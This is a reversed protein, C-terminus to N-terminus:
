SCAVLALFEAECQRTRPIVRDDNPPDDDCVFTAISACDLFDQFVQPDCREEVLELQEDCNPQACELGAFKSCLGEITADVVEHTSTDGDDDGCATCLSLALALAVFRTV